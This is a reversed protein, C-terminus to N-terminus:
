SAKWIKRIAVLNRTRFAEVTYGLTEDSNIYRAAQAAGEAETDNKWETDLWIDEDESIPLDDMIVKRLEAYRGGRSKVAAEPTERTLKFSFAVQGAKGGAQKTEDYSANNGAM